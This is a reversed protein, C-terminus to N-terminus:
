EGGGNYRSVNAGPDTPDDHIYTLWNLSWKPGVNFFNFTAPLSIDRQNYSIITRPSPGLPPSYGLPTDSLTLSVASEKINYRCMGEPCGNPNADPDGADGPVVGTTPGKGWIYSAERNDVARWEDIAANAPVLYYGSAEADLAARTVRVSRGPFIPDVM